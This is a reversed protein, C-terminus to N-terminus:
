QIMAQLLLPHVAVSLSFGVAGCDYGTSYPLHQECPTAEGSPLRLRRSRLGTGGANAISEPGREAGARYTVQGKHLKCLHRDTPESVDCTTRGCGSAYRIPESANSVPELRASCCVLWGSPVPIGASAMTPTAAKAPSKVRQVM